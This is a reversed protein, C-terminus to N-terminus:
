PGISEFVPEVKRSLDKFLRALTDEDAEKESAHYNGAESLWVTM